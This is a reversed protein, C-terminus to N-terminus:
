PFVLKISHIFNHDSPDIPEGRKSILQWLRWELVMRLTVLRLCNMGHSLPPGAAGVVVMGALVSVLFQGEVAEPALILLTWTFLRHIM